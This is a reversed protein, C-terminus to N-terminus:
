SRYAHDGKGARGGTAQGPPLRTASTTMGVIWHNGSSM